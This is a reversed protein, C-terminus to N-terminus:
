DGKANRPADNRMDNRMNRVPHRSGGSTRGDGGCLFNESM